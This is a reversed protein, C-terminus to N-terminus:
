RHHKSLKCKTLWWHWWGYRTYTHKHQIGELFAFVWQVNLCSSLSYELFIGYPSKEIMFLKIRFQHYFIEKRNEPGFSLCNIFFRYDFIGNQYVWWRATRNHRSLLKHTAATSLSLWLAYLMHLAKKASQFYIASKSDDFLLLNISHTSLRTLWKRRKTFFIHRINAYTIRKDKSPSGKKGTDGCHLTKM